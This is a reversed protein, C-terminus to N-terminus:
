PPKSKATRIGDKVLLSRAGKVLEEKIMFLVAAALVSQVIKTSMGKYFGNFGEYRIMKLIADATGTDIYMISVSCILGLNLFFNSLLILGLMFCASDANM